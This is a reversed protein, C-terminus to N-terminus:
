AEGDSVIGTAAGDPGGDEDPSDDTEGTHGTLASISWMWQETQLKAGSTSAQVGNGWFAGGISIALALTSAAIIKSM